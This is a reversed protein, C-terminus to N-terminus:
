NDVARIEIVDIRAISVAHNGIFLLGGRVQWLTGALQEGEVEVRLWTDNALQELWRTLRLNSLQAPGASLTLIGLRANPIAFVRDKQRGLVFDRAYVLNTLRMNGAARQVEAVGLNQLPNLAQAALSDFHSELDELLFDLNM